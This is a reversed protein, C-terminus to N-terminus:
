LSTTGAAVRHRARLDQARGELDADSVRRWDWRRKGLKGAIWRRLYQSPLNEVQRTWFAGECGILLYGSAQDAGALFESGLIPAWPHLDDPEPLPEVEVARPISLLHIHAHSIGCGGTASHSAMGHEFVISKTREDSLLASHTDVIREAAVAHDRSLHGFSPVHGKPIILLHDPGLEGITPTVFFNEDEWGIRRRLAGPERQGDECFCCDIM